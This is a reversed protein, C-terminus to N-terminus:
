EGPILSELTGHGRSVVLQRTIHTGLEYYFDATPRLYASIKQLKEIDERKLGEDTDLVMRGEPHFILMKRFVEWRAEDRTEPEGRLYNIAFSAGVDGKIREYFGISQKPFHMFMYGSYGKSVEEPGLIMNEPYCLSFPQGSLEGEMHLICGDFKAESIYTPVMGLMGDLSTIAFSMVPVLSLGSQPKKDQKKGM